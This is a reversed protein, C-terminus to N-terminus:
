LTKEKVGKKERKEDTEKMREEQKREKERM